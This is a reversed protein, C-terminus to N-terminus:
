DKKKSKRAKKSSRGKKTEDEDEEGERSTTRIQVVMGTAFLVVFGAGALFWDLTKMNLLFTHGGAAAGASALAVAAGGLSTIIIWFFRRFVLSLAGGAIGVLLVSALLGFWGEKAEVGFGYLIGVGVIGTVLGGLLFGFLFTYIYFFLLAGLGSGILGFLYMIMPQETIYADCGLTALLAGLVGGSIIGMLRYYRHGFLLLLFGWFTGAAPVFVALTSSADQLITVLSTALM